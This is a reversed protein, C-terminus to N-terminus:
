HLKYCKENKSIDPSINPNDDFICKNVFIYKFMKFLIDLYVCLYLLETPRM